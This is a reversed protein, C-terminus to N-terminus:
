CDLTVISYMTSVKLDKKLATYFIELDDYYELSTLLDPVITTRCPLSDCDLAEFHIKVNAFLEGAFSKV